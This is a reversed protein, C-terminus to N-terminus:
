LRTRLRSVKLRGRLCELFGFAAQEVDKAIPFRSCSRHNCTDLPGRCRGLLYTVQRLVYGPARIAEPLVLLGAHFPDDGRCGRIEIGKQADDPRQEIGTMARLFQQAKKASYLPARHREQRKHSQGPKNFQSCPQEYGATDQRPGGRENCTPLHRGGVPERVGGSAEPGNLILPFERDQITKEEEIDRTSARTGPTECTEEVLRM